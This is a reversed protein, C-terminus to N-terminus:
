QNPREMRPPLPPPQIYRALSASLSAQVQDKSYGSAGLKTISTSCYLWNLFRSPVALLYPLGHVLGILWAIIFVGM